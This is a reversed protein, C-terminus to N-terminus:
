SFSYVFMIISRSSSVSYSFHVFVPVILSFASGELANKNPNIAIMKTSSSIATKNIVGNTSDKTQITIQHSRNPIVKNKKKHEQSISGPKKLCLFSYVRRSTREFALLLFTQGIQSILFGFRDLCQLIQWDQTLTNSWWQGQILLQMPALFWLYKIQKIM